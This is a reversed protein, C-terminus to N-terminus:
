AKSKKLKELLKIINVVKFRDNEKIVAKIEEDSLLTNSSAEDLPTKLRLILEKAEVKTVIEKIPLKGDGCDTPLYYVSDKKFLPKLVYYCCDKNLPNIRLREIGEIACVGHTGYIVYDGKKFM